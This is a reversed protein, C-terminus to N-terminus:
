EPQLAQLVRECRPPDITLGRELGWLWYEATRVYLWQKTREPELKASENLIDLAWLVGGAAEIDELRWWILPAVGYELDGALVQPDVALWPERLGHLVNGYHLDWNVLLSGVTPILLQSLAFVRRIVHDPVPRNLREWRETLQRQMSHMSSTLRPAWEPAPFALRRLLQGSIMLAEEINVQLLDQTSDLRELLLLHRDLDFRLLRVAGQGNWLNLTRVINEISSDNTYPWTAKLAALGDLSQVDYVLGWSGYHPIRDVKLDWEDCATRILDPISAIWRSGQEGFRQVISAAFADPVIIV